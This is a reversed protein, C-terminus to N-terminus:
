YSKGAGAIGGALLFKGCGVFMSHTNKEGEGECEDDDDEVDNGLTGEETADDARKREENVAESKRLNTQAKVEAVHNSREAAKAKNRM